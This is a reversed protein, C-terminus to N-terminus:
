QEKKKNKKSREPMIIAPNVGSDTPLKGQTFREEVILIKAM